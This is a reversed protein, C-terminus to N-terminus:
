TDMYVTEDKQLNGQIKVEFNWDGYYDMLCVAHFCKALLDIVVWIRYIIKM